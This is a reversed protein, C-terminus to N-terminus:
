LHRGMNRRESISLTSSYSIRSAKRRGVDLFSSASSPSYTRRNNSSNKQLILLDLLDDANDIDEDEVDEGDNSLIQSPVPPLYSNIGKKRAVLFHLFLCRQRFEKEKLFDAQNSLMESVPESIPPPTFDLMPTESSSSESTKSSEGYPASSSPQQTSTRNLDRFFKELDETKAQQCREFEDYSM